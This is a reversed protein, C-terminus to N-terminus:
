WGDQGVLPVFRCPVDHQRQWDDGRRYFVTLIQHHRDGIPIVIVGDEKLQRRCAEPLSPAAATVLLRDYPAHPEYGKTGDGVVIDVPLDPFLRDLRKRADAALSDYREISTVSAGMVALIATQYGSGTGIELVHMGPSVDLLQTMRAVMYPQSITQGEATAMAQDSYAEEIDADPVFEHRPVRSMAQLVAPSDVGRAQIQRRIMQEMASQYSMTM